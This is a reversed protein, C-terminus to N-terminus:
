TPAVLLAHTCAVCCMGPAMVPEEFNHFVMKTRKQENLQDHLQLMTMHQRSGIYLLAEDTTLGSCRYNTDGMFIVHHFQETMQFFENGM